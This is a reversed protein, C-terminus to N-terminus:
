ICYTCSTTVWKIYYALKIFLTVVEQVCLLIKCLIYGQRASFHAAEGNEKDMVVIRKVDQFMENASLYSQSFLYQIDLFFHDM